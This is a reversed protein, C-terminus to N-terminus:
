RMLSMPIPAGIPNLISVKSPSNRARAFKNGYRNMPGASWIVMVRGPLFRRSMAERACICRDRSRIRSVSSKTSDLKIRKLKMFFEFKVGRKELVRYIPTVVVEGMGSQMEFAFSDMYTGYLRFVVQAATGAGYSPRRKDGDCYELMSDYLAQVIPSGYISDRTAGCFALWERFDMLDLDDISTGGLMIDSSSAKSPQRGSM